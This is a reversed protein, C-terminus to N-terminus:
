VQCPWLDRTKATQNAPSGVPHKAFGCPAERLRRSLVHFGLPNAARTPNM